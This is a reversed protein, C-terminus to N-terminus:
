LSRFFQWTATAADSWVAHGLGDIPCFVVPKGAPCASYAVCPSPSTAAQGTGCQNLFAWYNATFQGSDFTVTSDATGHIVMAAPGNGLTQDKCRTYGGDWQTATPDRPEAPAGGSHPAIGRFLNPRRCALQNIMFAGSSFGTGFVRNPDISFKSKLSDVLTVIFAVDPNSDAPDYLNWGGLGTPYVVLAAEGSASDVPFASRITSGSGADGHLVVILPYTQSASYSKPTALVYSRTQGAVDIGENTIVTPPPASPDASTTAPSQSDTGPASSDGSPGGNTSPRTPDVSGGVPDHNSSQCGIACM